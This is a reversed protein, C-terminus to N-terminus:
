EVNWLGFREVGLGMMAAPNPGSITKVLGLEYYDLMKYSDVNQLPRHKSTNSMNYSEVNQLLWRKTATSM